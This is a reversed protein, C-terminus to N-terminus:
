WRRRNIVAYEILIDEIMSHVEMVSVVKPQAGSTAGSPGPNQGLKNTPMMARVMHEAQVLVQLRHLCLPHLLKM